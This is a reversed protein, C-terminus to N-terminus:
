RKLLIVMAEDNNMDPMTIGVPAGIYTPDCITFKRDNLNIYDGNVPSHFEVATALHGPYYILVVDLGLLDRVIRSFLISRDECDCYPYYASEEAFFARDGGWVKDDYEYEFATQIFNLIINVAQLETKNKITDIIQPYISDSLDQDIPSNAYIAWRTLPDDGIQSNPYNDYFKILNENVKYTLNIPNTQAGKHKIDSESVSLKPSQTIILSLDKEDPFATNAVQIEDKPEGLMYYYDGDIVYYPCDYIIHKSAYLIGLSDKSIALRMKYGSQCYIFGTLFTAENESKLFQLCFSRLMQLYAWDCLNYASRLSLCDSIIQNYEEGSLREWISALSDGTLSHLKFKHQEAARVKLDTNFFSFTFTNDNIPTNDPIPEVPKPQPTPVIHPLTDKYPVENEEIPDHPKNDDYIVPPIEEEHPKPIEPLLRFSEWSKRLNEAYAKNCEERFSTYKQISQKRFNEYQERFSQAQLNCCVCLFMVIYTLLKRM